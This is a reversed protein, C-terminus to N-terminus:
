RRSWVVRHQDAIEALIEAHQGDPDAPWDCVHEHPCCGLPFRPGIALGMRVLRMQGLALGREFQSVLSQSVDAVEAVQRQSLGVQLRCRRFRAGVLAMDPLPWVRYRLKEAYYPDRPPEYM